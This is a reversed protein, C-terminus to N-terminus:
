TKIKPFIPEPKLSKLQRQIELIEKPMFPELYYAVQHLTSILHLFIEEFRTKQETELGMERSKKADNVLSWPKEKDIFANAGKVVRNIEVLAGQFDLREIKDEIIGNHRIERHKNSVKIKFRNIMVLTRQLLNGLDDALESNYRAILNKEAYDGDEGFPFERLLFYRLPGVGYKETIEIPNVVNGLTKSMKKGEITFYGHVFLKKPLSEEGASLMAPWILAHFRLIDKAM